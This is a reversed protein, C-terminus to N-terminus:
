LTTAGSARPSCRIRRRCPPVPLPVRRLPIAAFSGLGPTQGQFIARGLTTAVLGLAGRATLLLVIGKSRTVRPRDGQPQLTSTTMPRVRGTPDSRSSGCPTPLSSLSMPRHGVPRAVHGRRFLPLRAVRRWGTGAPVQGTLREREVVNRAIQDMEEANSWRVVPVIVPEALGLLISRTAPFYLGTLLGLVVLLILRTM